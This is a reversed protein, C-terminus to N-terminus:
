SAVSRIAVPNEPHVSDAFGLEVLRALTEDSSPLALGSALRNLMMTAGVTVTLEVITHDAYHERVPALIKPSVPGPGATLADIWDILALEGPDEFQDPVDLESRLAKVEELTLGEDHAAVTHAATCFRCSMNASARLIAIEKLRASVSSPGLAAGVFPLAVEALEPIHAFAGVISGPDGNAYYDRLLLPSQDPGIPEITSM